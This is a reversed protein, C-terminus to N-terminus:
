QEGASVGSFASFADMCWLVVVSVFTKCSEPNQRPSDPHAPVLFTFGPLHFWDPNVPALSLSYQTATADALCVQVEGWVSLWALM